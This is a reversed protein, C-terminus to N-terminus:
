AVLRLEPILEYDLLWGTVGATFTYPQQTRPDTMEVEILRYVLRGSNRLEDLSDIFAECAEGTLRVIQRKVEQKLAKSAGWWASPLETSRGANIIKTTADGGKSLYKGLEKNLSKRPKEIRTASSCDVNRGLLNSLIRSWLDRLEGPVIAWFHSRSERGQCVWHLHPCIQGWREFRKLQIETCFCYDASLGRRVLLRGLEQFFKRVLDSWNANVLTLDGESLTPLTATGFTLCERGFKQELVAACSRLMRKGYSTIGTQGRANKQNHSNITDSLGMPAPAGQCHDDASLVHGARQGFRYALAENGAKEYEQAIKWLELGDPEIEPFRNTFCIGFLEHDEIGGLPDLGRDKKPPVSRGITFDGSPYVKAVFQGKRKEPSVQSLIRIMTKIYLFVFSTARAPL